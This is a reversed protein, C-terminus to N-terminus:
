RGSKASADYHPEYYILAYPRHNRALQPLQAVVNEGDIFLGPPNAVIFHDVPCAGFVPYKNCVVFVESFFDVSVALEMATNDQESQAVLAYNCFYRRNRPEKLEM